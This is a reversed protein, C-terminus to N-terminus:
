CGGGDGGRLVFVLCRRSGSADDWNRGQRHCVPVFYQNVNRNGWAYFIALNGFPKCFSTFNIDQPQSFHSGSVSRLDNASIAGIPRRPVNKTGGTCWGVGPAAPAGPRRRRRRLPRRRRRGQRQRQWGRLAPPAPLALAPARPLGGGTQVAPGLVIDLLSFQWNM